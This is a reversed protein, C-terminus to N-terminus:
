VEWEAPLTRHRRLPSSLLLVLPLAMVLAGAWLATGTSWHGAILGGVLAGLPTAGQIAVRYAATVRGMYADPTVRARLGATSVARGVVTIGILIEAVAILPVAAQRFVGALPAAVVAFPALASFLLTMRIEGFRRRLRPALLSAALGAVAGLSSLLGYQWAPLGLEHLLFVPLMSLLIGAGVNNLAGQHLLLRLLPQRFLVRIGDAIERGFKQEAGPGGRAIDGQPHIRRLFLLSTLHGLAAFCYLVPAAVSQTLVGAVSPSIAQIATESTQLRANGDAVRPRPLVYPLM